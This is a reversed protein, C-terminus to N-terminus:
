AAGIGGTEFVELRIREEAVGRDVLAKHMQVMFPQPGCIFYEARKDALFLDGEADLKHFDIRTQGFHYDVGAKDEDNVSTLFVNASVNERRRAIEKVADSFPLSRSNRAGQIWSVPRKAKADEKTLSQLIAMMPTAGVGASILVAPVGEKGKEEPDVFFEGQPHSLEVEDGVAYKAHLLNSVMGPHDLVEGPEKKVSVRYGRMGKPDPAQSLSYQRSQLFGLEPVFVQLSVYQGPLYAPLLGGDVPELHFSAIHEAEAVKQVVRFKRWGVWGHRRQVEYMEGERKIFVGALVGYAATWADVIEPTAADGLVAGIAEILYKGVLDYQPASVQLSAHKHAILEVAAQLKPLDDIYTAYALVAGALARPQRGTTQSTISFINKLAPTSALLNNYFLTTIAEGHVKLVPATSKVIAIQSPTVTAAM